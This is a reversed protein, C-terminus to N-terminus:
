VRLRNKIINATHQDNFEFLRKELMKVADDDVSGGGTQDDCGGLGKIKSILMKASRCSMGIWKLLSEADRISEVTEVISADVVDNSFPSPAGILQYLREVSAIVAERDDDPLDVGGRAGLLAAAASFVARPVVMLQGDIVDAIPLKYATVNGANEDDVWLFARRYEPSAGDLSGTFARVRGVAADADWDRGRDAVPMEFLPLANKVSLINANANMPEGVLSVEWLDVQKIVRVTKGNHEVAKIKDRSPVSFGVSFDSLVGQKALAYAERGVQTELNIEGVVYLGREDERMKEAPFGGILQSGSHQWLMRVSRGRSVHDAITKAFAGREIVDAGRDIDWTSAYGEVIGIEVGDRNQKKVEGTFTFTKRIMKM